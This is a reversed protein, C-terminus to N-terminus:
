TNANSLTLLTPDGHCSIPVKILFPFSLSIAWHTSSSLLLKSVQTQVGAGMQLHISLVLGVSDEQSRWVLTM